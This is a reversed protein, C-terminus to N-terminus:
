LKSSQKLKDIQINIRNKDKMATQSDDTLGLHIDSLKAPSNPRNDLNM